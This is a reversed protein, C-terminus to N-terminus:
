RACITPGKCSCQRSKCFCFKSKKVCYPKKAHKCENRPKCSLPPNIHGKILTSSLKFKYIHVIIEWHAVFFHNTLLISLYNKKFVGKMFSTFEWCTLKLEHYYYCKWQMNKYFNIEFMIKLCFAKHCLQENTKKPDHLKMRKSLISPFGFHPISTVM